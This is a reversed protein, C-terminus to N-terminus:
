GRPIDRSAALETSYVRRARSTPHTNSLGLLELAITVRTGFAFPRRSYPTAARPRAAFGSGPPLIGMARRSKKRHHPFKGRCVAHLHTQLPPRYRVHRMNRCTRYRGPAM